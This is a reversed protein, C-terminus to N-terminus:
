KLKKGNSKEMRKKNKWYFGTYKIDFKSFKDLSIKLNENL